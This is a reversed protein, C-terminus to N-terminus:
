PSNIRRSDRRASKGPPRGGSCGAAGQSRKRASSSPKRGARGRGQGGTKKGAKAKKRKRGAGGASGGKGKKRKRTEKGTGAGDTLKMRDDDDELLRRKGPDKKMGWNIKRAQLEAELARTDLDNYNQMGKRALLRAACSPQWRWEWQCAWRRPPPRDRHDTM